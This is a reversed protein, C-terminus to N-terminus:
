IGGARLSRANAFTGFQGDLQLFLPPLGKKEGFEPM